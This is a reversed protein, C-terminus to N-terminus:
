STTRITIRPRVHTALARLDDPGSTIVVGGTRAATLALHADVVYDFSRGIM